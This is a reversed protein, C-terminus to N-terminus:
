LVCIERWSDKRPRKFLYGIKEQLVRDHPLLIPYGMGEVELCEYIDPNAFAADGRFYVRTEIQELQLRGDRARQDLEVKPVSKTWLNAKPM